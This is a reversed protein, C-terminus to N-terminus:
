RSRRPFERFPKFMPLRFHQTRDQLYYQESSTSDPLYSAARACENYDLDEGLLPTCVHFDPFIPTLPVPAAYPTAIDM